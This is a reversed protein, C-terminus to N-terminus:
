FTVELGLTLQHEYFTGFETNSSGFNITGTAFLELHDGIFYGISGYVQSSHDDLSYLWRGTLNLVDKFDSQVAQVMIYHQRLFRLNPDATMSLIDAASEAASGAQSYAQSAQNRLSYYLAAEEDTYGLSHYLYELSLTPGAQLTYSGGILLAGQISSDDFKSTELTAGFENSTEVPYLAESGQQVLTELYVLMADSVVWGGFGGIRTRDNMEHSLVLSGYSAGETFDLKVAHVRNFDQDSTQSGNGTNSIMSASWNGSPIWVARLFDKGRVEERPALRGNDMFFPNSPSSLFGPGWQLNERGFSLYVAENMAFRALWENIFMDEDDQHDKGFSDTTTQSISGSCRPKISFDAHPIILRFDPRFEVRYQTDPLQLFDNGPNQSSDTPSLVTGAGFVRITYDFGDELTEMFGPLSRELSPGTDVNSITEDDGSPSGASVTQAVLTLLCVIVIQKLGTMMKRKFDTKKYSM